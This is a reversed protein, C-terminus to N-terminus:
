VSEKRSRQSKHQKPKREPLCSKALLRLYHQRRNGLVTDLHQSSLKTLYVVSRSEKTDHLCAHFTGSMQLRIEEHELRARM